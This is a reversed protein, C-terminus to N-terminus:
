KGSLVTKIVSNMTSFNASIPEVLAQLISEPSSLYQSLHQPSKVLKTNYEHVSTTIIEAAVTLGNMYFMSSVSSEKNSIKATMKFLLEILFKSVRVNLEVITESDKVHGSTRLSTHFLWVPMFMRMLAGVVHGQIDMEVRMKEVDPLQGGRSSIDKMAESCFSSLFPACEDFVDLVESEILQLSTANFMVVSNRLSKALTLFLKDSILSTDTFNHSEALTESIRGGTEIVNKFLTKVDVKDVSETHKNIEVAEVLPMLINAVKHANVMQSLYKQENNQASM